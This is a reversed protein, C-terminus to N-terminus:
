DEVAFANKLVRIGQPDIGVVDFRVRRGTQKREKLYFLASQWIRKRKVRDVAEFPSGFLPTSRRKVEVFVIVDKEEAVIDIEGFPTRYNRELIKYGKGELYELASQEGERGLEKRVGRM